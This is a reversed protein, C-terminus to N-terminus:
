PPRWFYAIKPPQDRAASFLPKNEASKKQRGLVASFLGLAASFLKNKAACAKNEATEPRRFHSYSGYHSHSCLNLTTAIAYSRLYLIIGLNSWPIRYFLNPTDSYTVWWIICIYGLTFKILHITQSWVSYTSHSTWKGQKNFVQTEEVSLFLDQNKVVLDVVSYWVFLCSSCVGSLLM